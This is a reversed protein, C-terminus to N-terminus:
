GCYYACVTTTTWKDQLSDLVLRAVRGWKATDFPHLQELGWFSIDYEARYVLPLTVLPGNSDDTYPATTNSEILDELLQAM